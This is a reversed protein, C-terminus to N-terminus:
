KRHLQKSVEKSIKIDLKKEDLMGTAIQLAFGVVSLVSGAIKLTKENIM